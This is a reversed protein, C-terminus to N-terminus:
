VAGDTYSVEVVRHSPIVVIDARVRAQIGVNRLQDSISAPSEGIQVLIPVAPPKGMFKVVYGSFSALKSVAQERSGHWPMTVVQQMGRIQAYIRPQSPRNKMKEYQEAEALQTLSQQINMATEQLNQYAPDDSYSKDRGRGTGACGSLLTAVLLSDAIVRNKM